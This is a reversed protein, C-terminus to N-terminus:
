FFNDGFMKNKKVESKKQKDIDTDMLSSVYM